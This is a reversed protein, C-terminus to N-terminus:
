RLGRLREWEGRYLSLVSGHKVGPAIEFRDGSIASWRGSLLDPAEFAVYGQPSDTYQDLFLLWRDGQHSPFLIPGEIRPYRDAGIREAIIRHDSSRLSSGVEHHIGSGSADQREDKGIRHVWGQHHVVTTDIVDVGSDIMVEPETFHVFDRTRACLIRSYSPDERGPDDPSYLRSAWYVVHDLGGPEVVAEPAWAMGADAPAVEVLRPPTWEVLDESDWVVISRSGFRVLDDWAAATGGEVRLDTALIHFRGDLGRVLFPDRVGGTGVESALRADGGFLPDWRLPDDGRSLSFHVREGDPGERFHAFLFGYPRNPGRGAVPASRRSTKKPPM